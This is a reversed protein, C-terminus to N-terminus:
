KRPWQGGYMALQYTAIARGPAFEVQDPSTDDPGGRNRTQEHPRWASVALTTSSEITLFVHGCIQGIPLPPHRSKVRLM